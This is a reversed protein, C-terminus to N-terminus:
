ISSCVPASLQFLAACVISCGLAACVNLSRLLEHVHVSLLLMCLFHPNQYLLQKKISVHLFLATRNGVLMPAPLPASAPPQWKTVINPGGAPPSPGFTSSSVVTLLLLPPCMISSSRRCSKREFSSFFRSGLPPKSHEGLKINAILQPPLRTNPLM